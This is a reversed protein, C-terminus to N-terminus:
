FNPSAPTPAGRSHTPRLSYVPFRATSPHGQIRYRHTHQRGQCTPGPALQTALRPGRQTLQHASRETAL